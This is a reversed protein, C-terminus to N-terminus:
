MCSTRISPKGSVVSVSDGLSWPIERQNYFRQSVLSYSPERQENRGVRGRRIVDCQRM